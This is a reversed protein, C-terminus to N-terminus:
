FTIKELYPYFQVNNGQNQNKIPAINKIIVEELQDPQPKNLNYLDNNRTIPFVKKIANNSLQIIQYLYILLLFGVIPNMMLFLVVVVILSIIVGIPNNILNAIDLSPLIQFIILLALILGLANEVTFISYNKM